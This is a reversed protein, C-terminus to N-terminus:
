KKGGSAFESRAKGDIKIGQKECYAKLKKLDVQFDNVIFGQSSINHKAKVYAENWEEWTDFMTERDDIMELFDKWDKKRIYAINFNM